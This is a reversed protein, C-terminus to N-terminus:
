VTKNYYLKLAGKVLVSVILTGLMTYFVTEQFFGSVITGLALGGLIINIGVGGIQAQIYKSREDNEAIYLAKRKEESKLASIYKGMYYIMVAQVGVCVGTNFGMIFDPVAYKRGLFSGLAILAIMCANYLGALALRKKLVDRFHEM